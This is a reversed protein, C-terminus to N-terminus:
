EAALEYWVTRNQPGFTFVGDIPTVKATRTGTGDLAYAVLDDRPPIHLTAPINEVITPGTGWKHGVSTRDENWEMGQNEVRSMLVLLMRGSDALPRDDM